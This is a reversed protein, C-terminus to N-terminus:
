AGDIISSLNSRITLARVKVRSAEYMDKKLNDIEDELNSIELEKDNALEVLDELISNFVRLVNDLTNERGLLKLLVKILKKM